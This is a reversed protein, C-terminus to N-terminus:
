HITLDLLNKLQYFSWKKLFWHEPLKIKHFIELVLYNIVPFYLGSLPRPWAPLAGTQERNRYNVIQTGSKQSKNWVHIQM